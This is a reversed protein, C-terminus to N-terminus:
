ARIPGTTVRVSWEHIASGTDKEGRPMSAARATLLVRTVAADIRDLPLEGREVAAAIGWFVADAETVDLLLDYGAMVARAASLGPDTVAVPDATKM